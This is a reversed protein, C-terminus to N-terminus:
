GTPCGRPFHGVQRCRLCRPVNAVQRGGAVHRPGTYGGRCPPNDINESAGSAGRHPVTKSVVGELHDQAEKLQPFAPNKVVIVMAPHNSMRVVIRTLWVLLRAPTLHLQGKWHCCM